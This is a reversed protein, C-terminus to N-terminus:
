KYSLLSKGAAILSQCPIDLTHDQFVNTSWGAVPRPVNTSNFFAPQGDNVPNTPKITSTGDPFYCMVRNYGVYVAGIPQSDQVSIGIRTTMNNKAPPPIKIYIINHDYKIGKSSGVTQWGVGGGNINNNYRAVQFDGIQDGLIQGAAGNQSASPMDARYHTQGGVITNGIQQMSDVNAIGYSHYFNIQDHPNVAVNPENVILNYNARQGKSAPCEKFFIAHGFWPKNGNINLIQNNNASCVTSNEFMIGNAVYSIFNDHVNINTSGQTHVAFARTNTFRNGTVEIGNCNILMICTVSDMNMNFSQATIRQNSMNRLVIGKSTVTMNGPLPIFTPLPWLGAVQVPPTVIDKVTITVTATSSGSVNSATISYSTAPQAAQPKGVINGLNDLSMGIPLSRDITFKDIKGGINNVSVPTIATNVTLAPIVPYSIAPAKVVPVVPPKFPKFSIVTNATTQITTVATTTDGAPSIATKTITQPNQGMAALVTFAALALSLLTRKM